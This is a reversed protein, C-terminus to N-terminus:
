AAGPFGAIRATVVFGEAPAQNEVRLHAQKIAILTLAATHVAARLYGEAHSYRGHPNLRYGRAPEDDAREVTFVLHGGARLSGTAAALVDALDGFYVLTDASVVLDFAGPHGRLYATLEGTHLGDYTARERARELMGRSLDVGVLRRAYGRLLPGCLGTGAGADLVDLTGTPPGLAAAVAEAVLAPAQYQLRALVVDFSGAFADFTREVFGDSARIPVERGSCAAVMHRAIVSGPELALWREYVAAADSIRKLSYLTAGVRRYSEGDYPMLALARQYCTLAEDLRGSDRLLSGLNHCAGGSEPDLALAERFAAEAGTRDDLRRLVVGLNAHAGAFGPRLSLVHRYAAAADDLLGANLLMNGLNNVADAHEPARAVARRLLDLAEAHRGQQHRSLGLLHLADAHHPEALLIREYIEGAAELLGEKHLGVALEMADSLSLAARGTPRAEVDDGVGSV